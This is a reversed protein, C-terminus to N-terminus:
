NKITLGFNWVATNKHPQLYVEYRKATQIMPSQHQDSEASEASWDGSTNPRSDTHGASHHISVCCQRPLSANSGDSPTLMQCAIMMM